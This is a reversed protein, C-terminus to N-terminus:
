DMPKNTGKRNGFSEMEEHIDNGVGAGPSVALAQYIAIALETLKDQAHLIFVPEQDGVKPINLKGFEASIEM